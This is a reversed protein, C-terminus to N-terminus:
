SIMKRLKEVIERSVSFSTFKGEVTDSCFINRVGAEKIREEASGVFLGHVCILDINKIGEKKLIKAAESITGGTSVIDDFLLVESTNSITKGIKSEVKGSYRDRSKILWGYDSGLLKSIEIVRNLRGEDPAVVVYNKRLVEKIFYLVSNTASVSEAKEGFFSISEKSHPEVVLIKKFYFSNLVKSVVKSSIAEGPLFMKDQRAYALYPVVLVIEKTGIDNLVSLMQLLVFLNRDQPPSLSHVLMILDEKEVGEVKVYSEGDPFIKYTLNVKEIGMLESIRNGLINSSPGILLKLNSM